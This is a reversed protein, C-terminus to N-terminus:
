RPASEEETWEKVREAAEARPLLAGAPIRFVRAVSPDPMGAEHPTPEFRGGPFLAILRQSLRRTLAWNDSRFFTCLVRHDTAKGREPESLLAVLDLPLLDQRGITLFEFTKNVSVDPAVFLPAGSPDPRCLNALEVHLGSFAERMGPVQPHRVWLKHVQFGAGWVLAMLLLGRLWRRPRKEGRTGREGNRTGCKSWGWWWGSAVFYAVAPTAGLNRLTNASDTQTVISPLSMCGLWGLWALARRRAAGGRRAEILTYALGALFLVSWVPDLVPTGTKGYEPHGRPLPVAVNHLPVHDGRFSFMLLVDRANRAMLRLGASPGDRLPSVASPRGVLDSPARAYHLALPLAVLFAGALFSLFLVAPRFSPPRRRAKRAEEDEAEEERRDEGSGDSPSEIEEEAILAWFWLAMVPLFFYWSLYVYFGVGAVMGASAWAVPGRRSPAKARAAAAMAWVLAAAVLPVLNTRFVLRSFHAHWHLTALVFAAALAFVPGREREVARVAGFFLVCALCAIVVVVLRMVIVRPGGLWLAVSLIWVLLPERPFVDPYIMKLGSEYRESGAHLSWWADVGNLGEDMWLGPPFRDVGAVRVVLAILFVLFFWSRERGM